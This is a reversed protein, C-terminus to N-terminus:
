NNKLKIQFVKSKNGSSDTATYELFLRDNNTKITLLLNDGLTFTTDVNDTVVIECTEDFIDKTINEDYMDISCTNLTADKNKLTIEPPLYDVDDRVVDFSLEYNYKVEEETEEKSIYVCRKMDINSNDLSELNKDLYDYASLKAIPLCYKDNNSLKDDIEEKNNNVYIKAANEILVKLTYDYNTQTRKIIKTLSPESILIILSLLIIVALLEILTYGKKNKIM